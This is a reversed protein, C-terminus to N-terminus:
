VDGLEIRLDVRGITYWLFEAEYEAMAERKVKDIFKDKKRQRRTKAMTRLGIMLQKPNM